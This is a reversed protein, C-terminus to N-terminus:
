KRRKLAEILMGLLPALGGLGGMLGGGSGLASFGSQIRKVDAALSSFTQKVEEADNSLEALAMERIERVMNEEAGPKQMNAAIVVLVALVANVAAVIFAGQAPGYSEALLRYAGVNVMIVALLILGIAVAFLISRLGVRRANARALTMEARTLIRLKMMTENM